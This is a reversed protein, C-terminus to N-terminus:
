LLLEKIAEVCEELTEAAWTSHYNLWPSDSAFSSWVVVPKNWLRAYVMEMITGRYPWDPNTLEVLMADCRQIDALDRHVLWNSSGIWGEKDQNMLAPIKELDSLHEKARMPDLTGIESLALIKTAKIRWAIAQQYSLGGIAGSLYVLRAM